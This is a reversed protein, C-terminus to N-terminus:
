KAPIAIKKSHSTSLGDESTVTARLTYIGRPLRNGNSDSVDWTFSFSCNSDSYAKREHSWLLHGSLDFCEMRCQLACLARDTNVRVNMQDKERSYFSTIETVEPRM